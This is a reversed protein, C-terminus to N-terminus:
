SPPALEYFLATTKRVMLDMTFHRTVVERSKDGMRRALVPDDLLQIIKDALAHPNDPEIVFGNEDHTILERLGGVDTVVCPRGAAMYELVSIPLAETRSCLVAIDFCGIIRAPENVFGVFRVHQEIGLSRAQEQLRELESGTGVIVFEVGSRRDTVIKAAQLLVDLAKLRDLRAVIGVVRADPRLGAERRRAPVGPGDEFRRVDVGNHIVSVLAPSVGTEAVLRAKQTNAVVIIRNVLPLLWRYSKLKVHEKVVVTNSVLAAIPVGFLKSGVVGWFLTMPQVALYILDIRHASVIERLRFLGRVDFKNRMLRHYFPYGAQIIVEGLTGPEYFSCFVVEFENRDLRTVLDYTVREVGGMGYTSNVVLVHVPQRTRVSSAQATDLDVAVM